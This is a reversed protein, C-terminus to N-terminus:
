TTFYIGTAFWCYTSKGKNCLLHRHCITVDLLKRGPQLIFALPLDIPIQDKHSTGVLLIHSSTLTGTLEKKTPYHTVIDPNAVWIDIHFFHDGLNFWSQHWEIYTQRFGRFRNTPFSKSSLLCDSEKNKKFCGSHNYADKKILGVGPVTSTSPKIKFICFGSWRVCNFPLSRNEGRDKSQSFSKRGVALRNEAKHKARAQCLSSFQRWAQTCEVLSYKIRLPRETRTHNFERWNVTIGVGRLTPDLSFVLRKREFAGIELPIDDRDGWLHNITEHTLKNYEEGFVKM